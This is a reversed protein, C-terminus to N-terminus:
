YVDNKYGFTPKINKIDQCEINELYKIIEKM